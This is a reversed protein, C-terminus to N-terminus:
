SSVWVLGGHHFSGTNSDWQWTKIKDHQTNSNWFMESISCKNRKKPAQLLNRKSATSRNTGHVCKSCLQKKITGPCSDTVPLLSFVPTLYPQCKFFVSYAENELNSCIWSEGTIVLTESKVTMHKPKAIFFIFSHVTSSTSKLGGTKLYWDTHHKNSVM